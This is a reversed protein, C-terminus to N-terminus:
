KGARTAEGNVVVVRGDDDSGQLYYWYSDLYLGRYLVLRSLGESRTYLTKDGSAEFVLMGKDNFTSFRNRNNKNDLEPADIITKGLEAKESLDFALGYFSNGDRRLDLADFYLAKPTDLSIGKTQLQKSLDRALFDNNQYSDNGSRLVVGVDEYQGRLDLGNELALGIDAMTALRSDAPLVTRLLLPAFSNGGRLEGGGKSFVDLSKKVRDGYLGDTDKVFGEFAEKYQPLVDASVVSVVPYDAGGPVLLTERAM